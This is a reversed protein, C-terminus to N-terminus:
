VGLGGFFLVEDCLEYIQEFFFSKSIQGMKHLEFWIM